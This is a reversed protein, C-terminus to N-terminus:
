RSRWHLSSKCLCISVTLLLYIFYIASTNSVQYLKYDLKKAQCGIRYWHVRWRQPDYMFPTLDDEIAM